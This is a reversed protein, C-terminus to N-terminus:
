PYQLVDNSNIAIFRVARDQYDRALTPLEDMVHKVFPCHNCIFFIVTAVDGKYSELCIRDGSVVDRLCFSPALTGLPLMASPTRAM